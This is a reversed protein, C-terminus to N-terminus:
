FKACNVLKQPFGLKDMENWIEKRSVTDYAAKFDIFVHTVACKTGLV